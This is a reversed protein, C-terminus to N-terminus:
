SDEVKRSRQIDPSCSRDGRQRSRNYRRCPGGWNLPKCSGLLYTLLSSGSLTGQYQVRVYLFLPVYKYRKSNKFIYTLLWSTQNLLSNMLPRRFIHKQFHALIQNFTGWWWKWRLKASKISIWLSRASNEGEGRSLVSITWSFKNAEQCLCTGEAWDVHERPPELQSFAMGFVEVRAQKLWEKVVKPTHKPDNEQRFVWSCGRGSRSISSKREEQLMQLYYDEEKM